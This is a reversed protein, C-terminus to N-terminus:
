KVRVGNVWWQKTGDAWIRAPRDEARHRKGNVWWEKRGCAWILAPQDGERHRNGNVWWAKTGDSGIFAPQNGERHRKGNLYWVRTGNAWIQAPQDGERHWYKWGRFVLFWGACKMCHHVVREGTKTFGERAQKGYVKNLGPIARCMVAWAEEDQRAIEYLLHLPWFDM